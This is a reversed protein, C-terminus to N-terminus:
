RSIGGLAKFPMSIEPTRLGQERSYTIKESFALRLVCRRLAVDGSDWIKCPNVLFDLALEFMEDFTARTASTEKARAILNIKERELKAMRKEYISAVETSSADLIRDLVQAIQKEIKAAQAKLSQAM